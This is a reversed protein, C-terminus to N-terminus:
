PEQKLREARIQLYTRPVIEDSTSTKAEPSDTVDLLLTQGSELTAKHSNPRNTAIAAVQDPGFTWGYELNMFRDGAIMRPTVFLGFNFGYPADSQLTMQATQGDITLIRPESLTTMGSQTFRETLAAAKKATLLSWRAGSSSSHLRVHDDIWTQSEMSDVQVLRCTLMILTDNASRLTTLVERIEDHVAQTQRIVLAIATDDTAIEGDKEWSEPAVSAKILEVLPAFDLNNRGAQLIADQTLALAYPPNAATAAAPAVSKISQMAALAAISDSTFPAEQTVVLDAVSYAIRTFHAVTAEPAFENESLRRVARSDSEQAPVTAAIGPSFAQGASFSADQPSPQAVAGPLVVFALGVFALWCSIPTRKKLGNKLSMIREMRQVTIEVPKMGPLVPIPQLKHKSEIVSLLSRAYQAPTCRLEAIVQEDCCREAERSLWRNTLWVAPHFWWLCQSLVQLVGTRLDGRRIHLLEHALIPDLSSLLPASSSLVCSAGEDPRDARTPLEVHRRLTGPEGSKPPSPVGSLERGESNDLLCRPLVITHRFLGFVAPGFLVDSVVVRPIRRLRLQKSLQRMRQRLIDDFENTRHCHITQLCLLCRVIMVSLTAFSGAVIVFLTWRTWDRRPPAAVSPQGRGVAMVIEPLTSAIEAVPSEPIAEVACTTDISESLSPFPEPQTENARTAAAKEMSLSEEPTLSELSLPEDSRLDEFAVLAQLQSFVGLSHGWVPPTLCKLVVLLWLAHALHPRSKAVFRVILAVGVALVAIQWSQTIVLPVLENRM